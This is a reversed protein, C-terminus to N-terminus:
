AQIYDQAIEISGTALADWQIKAENVQSLDLLGALSDGFDLVGVGTLALSRKVANEAQVSTFPIDRVDGDVGAVSLRLNGIIGDTLAGAGNRTHFAIFRTLNGTKLRIDAQNGTAAIALTQADTRHALSGQTVAAKDEPTKPTMSPYCYAEVSATYVAAAGAGIVGGKFGNATDANFSIRMTITSYDSSRLATHLDYDLGDMEMHAENSFVATSTAGLSVVPAPASETLRGLDYFQAGTLTFVKGSQAGGSVELSVEDIFDRVDSSTPATTAFGQTVALKLVFESVLYDKNLVMTIPTSASGVGSAVNRITRLLKTYLSDM